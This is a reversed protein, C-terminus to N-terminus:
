RYDPGSRVLGCKDTALSGTESAKAWLGSVRGLRMELALPLEM